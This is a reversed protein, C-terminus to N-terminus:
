LPFCSKIWFEEETNTTFMNTKQDNLRRRFPFCCLRSLSGIFSSLMSQDKMNQFLISIISVNSINYKNRLSTIWTVNWVLYHQFNTRASCVISDDVNKIAFCIHSLSLYSHHFDDQRSFTVKYVHRAKTFTTYRIFANQTFPWNVTDTIM